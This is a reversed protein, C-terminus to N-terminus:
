TCYIARDFGDLNSIAIGNLPLIAKKSSNFAVQARYNRAEAPEATPAAV